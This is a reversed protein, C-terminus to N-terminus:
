VEIRDAIQVAEGSEVAAMPAPPAVTQFPQRLVFKGPCKAIPCTWGKPLGEELIECVPCALVPPAERKAKAKFM